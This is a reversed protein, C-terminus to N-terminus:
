RPLSESADKLNQLIRQLHSLSARLSPDGPRRGDTFDALRRTIHGLDALITDMDAPAEGDVLEGPSLPAGPGGPTVALVVEGLLGSRAIAYHSGTRLLPGFRAGDFLEASALVRYGLGPLEAITLAQVEGAEIGSVMVPSGAHLGHAEDLVVVFPLGAGGLDLGRRPVYYISFLLAAGAVLGLGAGLWFDARRSPHTM